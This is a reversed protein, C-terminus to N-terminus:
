FPHCKEFYPNFTTSIFFLSWFSFQTLIYPRFICKQWTNLIHHLATYAKKSCSSCQFDSHLILRTNTSSMTAVIGSNCSIQLASPFCDKSWSKLWRLTWGFKAFEEMLAELITIKVYKTIYKNEKIVKLKFTMILTGNIKTCREFLLKM